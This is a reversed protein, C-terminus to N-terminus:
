FFRITREMVAGGRCGTERASQYRLREVAALANANLAPNSSEVVRASGPEPFGDDDVRFRVVVRGSSVGRDQLEAPLEPEANRVLRPRRAGCSPEEDPRGAQRVGSRTASGGQAPVVPAAPVVAAEPGSVRPTGAVSPPTMAFARRISEPDEDTARLSPEPVTLRARADRGNSRDAPPM